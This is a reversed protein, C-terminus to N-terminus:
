RNSFTVFGGLWYFTSLSCALNGVWQWHEYSHSYVMSCAIIQCTYFTSRLISNPYIHNRVVLKDQQKFLELPFAPPHITVYSGLSLAAKFVRPPVHSFGLWPLLLFLWLCSSYALEWFAPSTSDICHIHWIVSSNPSGWSLPCFEDGWGEM